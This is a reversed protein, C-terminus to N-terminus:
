DTPVKSMLFLLFAVKVFFEFILTICIQEPADLLIASSTFMVELLMLPEPIM